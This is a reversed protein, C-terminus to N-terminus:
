FNMECVFMGSHLCPPPSTSFIALKRVQIKIVKELETNFDMQAGEATGPTRSVHCLKNMDNKCQKVLYSRLLGEGGPAMTLEHYAADGIFSVADLELGFTEAFWLATEVTTKLERLKRRQQREKVETIKGSDNKFNLNQGLKTIYDHLQKNQKELNETTKNATDLNEDVEKKVGKVRQLEEVLHESRDKLNENEKLIKDKKYKETRLEIELDEIAVIEDAFVAIDYVNALYKRYKNGTKRALKSKVESCSRRLRGELRHADDKVRLLQKEERLVANIIQIYTCGIQAKAAYWQKLCENGVHITLVIENASVCQKHVYSLCHNLDVKIRDKFEVLNLNNLIESM